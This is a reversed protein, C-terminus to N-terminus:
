LSSSYIRWVGDEKRLTVPAPSDRVHSVLFFKCEKATADCKEPERRAIRIAFDKDATPVPKVAYSEARTRFVKWSYHRLQTVATDTDRNQTLQLKLWCDFASSDDSIDAGCHLIEKITAEPSGPAFTRVIQSEEAAKRAAEQAEAERAERAKPDEAASPPKAKPPKAHAAGSMLLTATLIWLSTRM